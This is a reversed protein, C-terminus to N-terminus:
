QSLTQSWPQIGSSDALVMRRERFDVFRVRPDGACGEVLRRLGFGVDEPRHADSGAALPMGLELALDLLWGAPYPEALGRRWGSTNLELCLGAGAARELAERALLAERPLAPRDASRYIDAHSMVQFLGSAAAESWRRWYEELIAEERERDAHIIFELSERPGVHHVSGLLLDWPHAASVETIRERLEPIWDVELGVGVELRGSFEGALRRIELYYDELEGLAMRHGVDTRDDLPAHDTFIIRRIGLAVAREVYERPEGRAHRCRPTHLHLDAPLSNM